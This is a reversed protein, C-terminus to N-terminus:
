YKLTYCFNVVRRGPISRGLTEFHLPYIIGTLINLSTRSLVTSSVTRLGTCYEAVVYIYSVVTKDTKFLLFCRYFTCM